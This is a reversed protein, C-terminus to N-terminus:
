KRLSGVYKKINTKSEEYINKMMESGIFICKRSICAKATTGIGMFPDYIISKPEFYIDILQEILDTSYTAKNISKVGDNNKAEIFNNYYKYFRQGTKENIKSLEKNAKFTHSHNKNVLVFVFECIRSLKNHSSQFPMSTAKKWIITDALTLETEDHIKNLLIFPLMPNTNHYSINYLIVGDDKVIRVFEKFEKIRLNLYDEDSLNDIESYGNDYYNDKRKTAINYPPSTIIGDLYNDSIKNMTKINDENFIKNKM